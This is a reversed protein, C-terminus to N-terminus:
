PGTTRTQIGNARPDPPLSTKDYSTERTNGRIEARYTSNDLRKRNIEAAEFTIRM